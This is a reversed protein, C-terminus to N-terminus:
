YMERLNWWPKALCVLVYRSLGHQNLYGQNNPDTMASAIARPGKNAVPFFTKTFIVLDERPINFKKIAQGMLIESDGASYMDAGDWTNIGMKYAQNFHELAEDGELVWDAWTKNGYSM